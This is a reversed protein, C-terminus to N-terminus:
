PKKNYKFNIKLLNVAGEGSDEFNRLEKEVNIDFIEFNNEKINDTIPVVKYLPMDYKSSIKPM